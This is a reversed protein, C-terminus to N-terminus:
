YEFSYSTINGLYQVTVPVYGTVGGPISEKIIFTYHDGYGDYPHFGVVVEFKADIEITHNGPGIPILSEDIYVLSTYDGISGSKAPITYNTTINGLYPYLSRNKLSGVIINTESSDTRGLVERIRVAIDDFSPVTKNVTYVGYQDPTLNKAQSYYPNSQGWFQFYDTKHFGIDMMNGHPSDVIAIYLAGHRDWNNVNVINTDWAGRYPYQWLTGNFRGQFPVLVAGDLMPVPVMIRATGNETTFSELGTVRLTYEYYPTAVLKPDDCGSVLTVSIIVLVILLGATPTKIRSLKV